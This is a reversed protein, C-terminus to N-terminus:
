SNAKHTHIQTYIHAEHAHRLGSLESSPMPVRASSYCTTTLQKTPKPFQLGTKQMRCSCYASMIMSDRVQSSDPQTFMSEMTWGRNFHLPTKNNNQQKFQVHLLYRLSNTPWKHMDTLTDKSLNLIEWHSRCRRLTSQFLFFGSALFANWCAATPFEM